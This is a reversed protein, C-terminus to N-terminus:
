AEQQAAYQGVRDTPPPHEEDVDRDSKGHEHSRSAEDPRRDEAPLKTPKTSREAGTSHDGQDVGDGAETLVAEGVGDRPRQDGSGCDKQHRKAVECDRLRL